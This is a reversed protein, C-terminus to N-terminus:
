RSPRTEQDLPELDIRIPPRGDPAQFGEETLRRTLILLWPNHDLAGVLGGLLERSAEDMWHTDELVMITPESSVAELLYRVVEMTRAPRFQSDLLTVEPTDPWELNLTAAILPLWPLLEPTREQVLDGLRAGVKEPETDDIALAQRLLARFPFYPTASQYLRCEARVIREGAARNLFEELLRSKGM